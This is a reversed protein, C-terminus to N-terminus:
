NPFGFRWTWSIHKSGKTQDHETYKSVECKIELVNLLYIWYMNSEVREQDPSLFEMPCGINIWCLDDIYRFASRFKSMLDVRGQRALRQIFSIEYHLLYLNCWLPSCSFGMSIGLNQRWVRDGLAVFCNTMLWRHYEVLQKETISFWTGYAPCCTTWTARAACGESDVQIWINPEARPHKTRAQKFGIKIISSITDILNDPDNLLITEYCCTVDAVFNTRAYQSCSWHVLEGALFYVNPM